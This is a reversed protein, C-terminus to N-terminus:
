AVSRLPDCTCSKRPGGTLRCDAATLLSECRERTFLHRFTVAAHMAGLGDRRRRNAIAAGSGGSRPHRAADGLSAQEVTVRAQRDPARMRPGGSIAASCLGPARGTKGHRKGALAVERPLAWMHVYISSYGHQPRIALGEQPASEDHAQASGRASPEPQDLQAALTRERACHQKSGHRRRANATGSSRM